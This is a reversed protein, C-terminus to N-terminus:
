KSYKYGHIKSLMSQFKPMWFTQAKGSGEVIRHHRNCLSILNNLNCNNKDGDIHHVSHSCSFEDQHRDCMMCLYADRKRIQRKLKETWTIPYPEFSKGGQWSPNNEGKTGVGMCKESCYKIGAPKGCIICIEKKNGQYYKKMRASINEKNEKYHKKRQASIEKKHEERYKKTQINIKVKNEEYHKKKWASMKDKNEERYKKIKDKNKERYRKLKDKNKENYEKNYALKKEM